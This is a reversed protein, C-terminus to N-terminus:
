AHHAERDDDLGSGLGARLLRMFADGTPNCGCAQVEPEDDESDSGATALRRTTTLQQVISPADTEHEVKQTLFVPPATGMVNSKIFSFLYTPSMRVWYSSKPPDLFLCLACGGTVATFAFLRLSVCQQKFEGYSGPTKTFFDMALKANSALDTVPPGTVTDGLGRRALRLAAVPQPAGARRAVAAMVSM